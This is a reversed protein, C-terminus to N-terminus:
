TQREGFEDDAFRERAWTLFQRLPAPEGEAEAVLLSSFWGHHASLRLHVGHSVAESILDRSARRRALRDVTVCFASAEREGGVLTLLREAREARARHRAVDRAASVVETAQKEKARGVQALAENQAAAAAERARVVEKELRAVRSELERKEATLVDLMEALSESARSLEGLLREPQPESETVHREETVPREESAADSRQDLRAVSSTREEDM